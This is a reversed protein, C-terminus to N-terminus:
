LGKKANDYVELLLKRFAVREIDNMGDFIYEDVKQISDMFVEHMEYAKDTAVLRKARRDKEYPTRIVYGKRELIHIQETITASKVFFSKEIDRQLVARDKRAVIYALVQTQQHTLGYEKLISNQKLECLHAVRYLVTCLHDKHNFMLTKEDTSYM